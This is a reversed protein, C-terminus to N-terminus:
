VCCCGIPERATVPATLEFMTGDARMSSLLVHDSLAFADAMGQSVSGLLYAAEHRVAFVCLTSRDVVITDSQVFAPDSLAICVEGAHNRLFAAESVPQQLM